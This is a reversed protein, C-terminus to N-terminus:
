SSVHNETFIVENTVLASEVKQNLESSRTKFAMTSVSVQLILVLILTVLFNDLSINDALVNIVTKVHETDQAKRQNDSLRSDEPVGFLILNSKRSNRDSIEHIIEEFDISHTAVPGSKASKLKTVEEQLSVVLAKLDAMTSGMESCVWRYFTRNYSKSCICGGIALILSMCGLIIVFTPLEVFNLHTYRRPWKLEDIHAIGLAILSISLIGFCISMVLLSVRLVNEKAALKMKGCRKGVVQRFDTCLMGSVVLNM